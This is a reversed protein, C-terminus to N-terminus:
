SRRRRLCVLSGLASALISVASPEPVLTTTGHMLGGLVPLEYPQPSTMNLQMRMSIGCGGPLISAASSPDFTWDGQMAEWGIETWSTGGDHSSTMEVVFLGNEQITYGCSTIEVPGGGPAPSCELFIDFFSSPGIYSPAELFIDFFSDIGYYGPGGGSDSAEIRSPLEGGMNDWCVETFVDFFSSVQYTGGDFYGQSGTIHPASPYPPGSSVECFIDFFSDIALTQGSVSLVMVLVCALIMLHRM